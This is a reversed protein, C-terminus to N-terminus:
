VDNTEEKLIKDSGKQPIFDGDYENYVMKGLKDLIM